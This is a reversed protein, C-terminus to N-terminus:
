RPGYFLMVSTVHLVGGLYPELIKDGAEIESQGSLVVHVKRCKGDLLGNLKRRGGARRFNPYATFRSLTELDPHRLHRRRNEAQPM